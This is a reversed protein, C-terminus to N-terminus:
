PIILFFVGRRLRHCGWALVHPLDGGPPWWPEVYKQPIVKMFGKPNGCCRNTVSKGNGVLFLSFGLHWSNGHRAPHGLVHCRLSGGHLLISKGTAIELFPGAHEVLFM